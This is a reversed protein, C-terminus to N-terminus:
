KNEQNKKNMIRGVLGGICLFSIFRFLDRQWSAEAFFICAVLSAICGIILLYDLVKM